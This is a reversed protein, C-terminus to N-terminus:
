DWVENKNCTVSVNPLGTVAFTQKNLIICEGFRIKVCTKISDVVTIPKPQKLDIKSFDEKLDVLTYSPDYIDIQNASKLLFYSVRPKLKYHGNTGIPVKSCIGFWEENM